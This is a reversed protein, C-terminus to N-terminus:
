QPESGGNRADPLSPVDAGDGNGSGAKLLELAREHGIKGILNIAERKAPPEQEVLRMIAAKIQEHSSPQQEREVAYVDVRSTTPHDTGLLLSLREEIKVCL